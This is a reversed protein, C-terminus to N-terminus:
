LGGIMRRKDNLIAADAGLPAVQGGIGRPGPPTGTPRQSTLKAAASRAQKVWALRAALDDGGPALARIEEPLEKLADKLLGEVAEVLSAHRGSLTEHEAAKADREAQYTGALREWEGSRKAAEEAAKTRAAHAEAEFKAKAAAEAKRREEAAVRNMDEQTFRAGEATTSASTGAGSDVGPSTGAGATSTTIETADSM